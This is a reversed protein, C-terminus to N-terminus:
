EIKKSVLKVWFDIKVLGLEEIHSVLKYFMM